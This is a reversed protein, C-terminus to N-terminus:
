RGNVFDDERYLFYNIERFLERCLALKKLVCERVDKDVLKEKRKEMDEELKKIAGDIKDSSKKMDEDFRPVLVDSLSQISQIYQKRTDPVYEMVVKNDVITEKNYGGRFEMTSLELIRKLHQLIIDKFTDETM